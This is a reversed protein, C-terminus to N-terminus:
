AGGGLLRRARQHAGLLEAAPEAELFVCRYYEAQHAARAFALPLPPLAAALDGVCATIDLEDGSVRSLLTVHPAFVPTRLRRALESVLAQLRERLPEAPVLWLSLAAM